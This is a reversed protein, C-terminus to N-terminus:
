TCLLPSAHAAKSNCSKCEPFCFISHFSTTNPSLNETVCLGLSFEDRSSFSPDPGSVTAAVSIM